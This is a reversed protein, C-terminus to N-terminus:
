VSVVIKVDRKRTHVRLLLLLMRGNLSTVDVAMDQTVTTFPVALTEIM